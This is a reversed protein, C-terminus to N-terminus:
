SQQPDIAPESGIAAKKRIEEILPEVGHDTLTTVLLNHIEMAEDYTSFRWQPQLDDPLGFVMTEFLIPAGEDWNQNIGTFVTSIQLEKITAQAIIRNADDQMATAFEALTCRVPVRDVLRYFRDDIPTTIDNIDNSM